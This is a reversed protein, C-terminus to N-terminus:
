KKYPFEDGTEEAWMSILKRHKDRVDKYEDKKVLNKMEGPDNIMDFLQERRKGNDYIIYKFKETRIMRGRAGLKKAGRAFMTETVVFERDGLTEGSMAPWLSRGTMSAPKEAGAIDLITVPIDLGNSVLDNCVYNEEKGSWSIILPVKASQDYLIQKQNWKHMAIGEGHDSTFLVVTRDDMGSEALAQLVLGIESDVKEVLRYYGWLYQRWKLEDWDATPYHVTSKEQIKRIVSPENDPPDFNPPLPPLSSLETPPTGIPGDPLKQDRALECVNHPNMYSVTLFFPEVKEEMLYKVAAWAKKDDKGVNDYEPYGSKEAKTGVHWKGIYECNYGADAMLNGLMPVEVNFKKGNNVVGLEHPYRGTQFSSRSPLCLPQTVYNNAFLVGSSALKDIAPTRLYENGRVSLADSTLQDTLILLINPKEPIQKKEVNQCAFFSIFVMMLFIGKKLVSKIDKM